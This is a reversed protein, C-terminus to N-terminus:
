KFESPLKSFKYYTFLKPASLINPFSKAHVFVKLSKIFYSKFTLFDMMALFIARLAVLSRYEPFRGILELQCNCLMERTRINGVAGGSTGLGQLRYAALPEKMMFGSDTGILDVSFLWDIAPFDKYRLSFNKKRYMTSSHPGFPGYLMLDGRSIKVDLFPALSAPHVRRLGNENFMEMQHWVISISPNLDLKDAQKQLKGPLAYDDGDMHCIYEGQSRRHVDFYNANGGINKERYIPTIIGPYKSKFEDIIIRSKDSSCDDGIIVEFNFNTKQDVLSQLCQRIYHEHNYSLVCVSVRPKIVQENM